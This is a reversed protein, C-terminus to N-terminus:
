SEMRGKALNCGGRGGSTGTNQRKDSWNDYGRGSTHHLEYRTQSLRTDLGTYWHTAKENIQHHIFAGRLCHDVEVMTCLAVNWFVATNMSIVM